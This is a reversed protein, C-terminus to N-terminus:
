LASIHNEGDGRTVDELTTTRYFSLIQQCLARWRASRRCIVNHPPCVAGSQACAELEELGDVADVVEFLSIERAPKALRFGGGPGKTSRVLKHRALDRLIKAVFPAPIGEQQAIQKAGMLGGEGKRALAILARLAYGCTRSYLVIAV